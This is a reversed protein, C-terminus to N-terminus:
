SVYVLKKKKKKQRKTRNVTLFTPAFRVEARLRLLTRRQVVRDVYRRLRKPGCQRGRAVDVRRGRGPSGHVVMRLGYGVRVELVASVVRVLLLVFVLLDGGDSAGNGLVLGDSRVHRRGRADFMGVHRREVQVSRYAPNRIQFRRSRRRLRRRDDRYCIFIRDVTNQQVPTLNFILFVM